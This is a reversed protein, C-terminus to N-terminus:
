VSVFVHMFVHRLKQIAPCVPPQVSPMKHMDWNCTSLVHIYNCRLYAFMNSTATTCFEPILLLLFLNGICKGEPVDSSVLISVECNEFSVSAEHALVLLCGLVYAVWSSNPNAQSHTYAHTHTHTHTCRHVYICTHAHTHTHARAQTHERQQTPTQARSGWLRQL